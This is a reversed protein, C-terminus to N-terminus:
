NWITLKLSTYKKLSNLLKFHREASISTNMKYHFEVLLESIYNFDGNEVMKELVDYEAGEIDMKIVIYDDISPQITAHFWEVFDIAEVMIPKNYDVASSNKTHNTLLTSGDKYGSGWNTALFFSLMENKTWVAKKHLQVPVNPHNAIMNELVESLEPQPEFAYFSYNIRKNIFRELVQGSNAGCDILIKKSSNNKKKIRAICKLPYFFWLYLSRLTNKFWYKRDKM